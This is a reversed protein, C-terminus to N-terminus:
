THSGESKIPTQPSAIVPSITNNISQYGDRSHRTDSWIQEYHDELAEFLRGPRTVLFTPTNRSAQIGIFYPGWLIEDDTRCINVGPMTSYLRVHFRDPHLVKVPLLEQLFHAVDTQITGEPNGEERDRQDAYTWKPTPSAPDLLLVRVTAHNLWAAFQQGFDQRLASLGFGLLDIRKRASEFRQKYEAQILMSRAPFATVIGIKRLRQQDQRYDDNLRIWLFIVWGCLGTAAISTGVAIFIPSRLQAILVGTVFLIVHVLLYVQHDPRLKTWRPSIKM